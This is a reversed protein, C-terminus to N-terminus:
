RIRRKLELALLERNFLERALDEMYRWEAPTAGAGISMSEAEGSLVNDLHISKMVIVLVGDEMHADLGNLDIRFQSLPVNYDGNAVPDNNPNYKKPTAM